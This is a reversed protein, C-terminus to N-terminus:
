SSPGIGRGTARGGSSTSRTPRESVDVRGPICGRGATAAISTRRLQRGLERRCVYLVGGQARDQHIKRYLWAWSIKVLGKRELRGAIQEPSWQLLLTRM